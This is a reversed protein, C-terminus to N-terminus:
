WNKRKKLETIQALHHHGHWAYLAMMSNLDLEKKMEPHFLKRDFDEKSMHDLVHSLRAHVGDLISLSHRIPLKGDPGAVWLDQEYPKITPVDETLTLKFRAFSNMHSDALHHVIQRVSWGGERYPVDLQDDSLNFTAQKVKGPLEKFKAICHSRFEPTYNEPTSFKGTPYKLQQLDQESNM